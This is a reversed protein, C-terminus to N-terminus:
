RGRSATRKTRIAFLVMSLVLAIFLLYDTM